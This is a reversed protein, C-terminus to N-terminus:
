RRYLDPPERNSSRVVDILSAIAQDLEKEAGEGWLAVTLMQAPQDARAEAVHAVREALWESWRTTRPQELVRGRLPDWILFGVAFEEGTRRFLYTQFPLEGAPTRVLRVGGARVLECGSMPLCVTPNHLFPLFRAAQGSHWEIYYAAHRRQGADRWEAATFRDPALMEDTSKTKPVQRFGPAKEPFRATWGFPGALHRASGRRYWERGALEVAVLLVVPVAVWVLATRSPSPRVAPALHVPSRPANRWRRAAFGTLALSSGLAIWGAADHAAAVAAEGGVTARWTLLMIRIFNGGVAAAAGVAVLALRRSWSLRFWEGFFLAATVSAQLSRMGGCTEDVGVWLNALRVSTGMALAPVGCLQCIEAAVSALAARLPAIVNAELFSPWPLAGPLLILPGALWRVGARGAALWAGGLAIAALLAVYLTLALPWLPFPTLLLRLFGASLALFLAATWAPAGARLREVNAPREDWREWWLYAALVPVAWGHGLDRAQSWAASLPVLVLAGLLGVEM